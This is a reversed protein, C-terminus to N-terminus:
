STKKYFNNILYGTFSKRLYLRFYIKEKILNKNISNRDNIILQLRFCNTYLNPLLDNLDSFNILEYLVYLENFLLKCDSKDLISIFSKGIIKYLCSTGKNGVILIWLIKYIKFFFKSKLSFLKLFNFLKFSLICTDQLPFNNFDVSITKIELNINYIDCFINKNVNFSNIYYELFCGIWGKNNGINNPIFYNISNALKGISCGSINNLIDLIDDEFLSCFDFYVM